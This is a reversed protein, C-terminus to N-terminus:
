QVNERSPSAQESAPLVGLLRMMGLDDANTWCEVVKGNAIREITIGTIIGHRGTPPIGQFEGVHTGRATWRTVVRDGEAVQDEVTFLIDPFAQRLGAYFQRYGERGHTENAPMTSHGLYDRAVLEDIVAFNGQNWVEEVLRRELIKNQESM